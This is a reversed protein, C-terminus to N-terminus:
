IGKGENASRMETETAAMAGRRTRRSPGQWFVVRREVMAVISFLVLGFISLLVILGFVRDIALRTAAVRIQEGIGMGGGLLEAAVAGTVASVSAIKLGSFIYPMARYIKLKWFVQWRSARMSRFLRLELEESAALGAATSVIIPFISVFTAMVIKSTIGFGFWAVFLPAFAIKPTAEFVVFLPMAARHGFTTLGIWAGVSIGILIAFSFGLLVEQATILFHELLYGGSLVISLVFWIQEVVQVPSPLIIQSIGGITISLWWALLILGVLMSVAIPQPIGDSWFGKKKVVGTRTM